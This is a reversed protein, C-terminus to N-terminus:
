SRMGTSGHEFNRQVAPRKLHERYPILWGRSMAALVARPPVTRSRQIRRREALAHPIGKVADWKARLITAGHGILGFRVLSVATLLLHQPAYWWLRWGPMNKLWAWVLNRHGHYLAFASSRSTTGSGVHLVRAGPVYVCRHGRLRLRFALDIDEAYCFFAVDFGGVEEFADRRVLAAAACPSFVEHPTDAEPANHGHGLRWALGSVHYADGAGDLTAPDDAMRLESAFMTVDPYTATASVLRELWDPEPFADPNLFALWDCDSAARAAINNGEAFGSNRDLAIVECASFQRAFDLSGDTSANDLVIVRDAPRRQAALAELARRLHAGANWNVIIAAVRLESRM